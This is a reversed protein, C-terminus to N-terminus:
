DAGGWDAVVVAVSVVVRLPEPGGLPLVLDLQPQVAPVAPHTVALSPTIQQTAAGGPPRYRDWRTLAQLWPAPDWTATVHGGGASQHAAEPPTFVAALLEGSLSWAGRAVRADAGGVARGGTFRHGTALLDVAQLTGGCGSVAVEVSGSTLPLALGLRGAGLAQRGADGPAPAGGFVGARAFLRGDAWRRALELGTARGPALAEVARARTQLPPDADPLLAEGSVPVKMRGARISASPAALTTHADLLAPTQLADLQLAARWAPALQAEAAVRADGPAVASPSDAEWPREAGVSLMAGVTVPTARDPPLGVLPAATLPRDDDAGTAAARPTEALASVTTLLM